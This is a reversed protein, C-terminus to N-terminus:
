LFTQFVFLTVFNVAVDVVVGILALLAMAALTMGVNLPLSRRLIGWVIAVAFVVAPLYIASALRTSATLGMVMVPLAIAAAAYVHAWNFGVILSAVSKQAGVNRAIMILTFLSFGWALFFSALEATALLAFPAELLPPKPFGAIVGSARRFSAFSLLPFPAAAALAWFSRFVGDVSRDLREEWGPMGWAMRWAGDLSRAAHDFVTM